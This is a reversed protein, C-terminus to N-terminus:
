THMQRNKNYTYYTKKEAKLKQKQANEIAIEQHPRKCNKNNSIISVFDISHRRSVTAWARIREDLWVFPVILSNSHENHM